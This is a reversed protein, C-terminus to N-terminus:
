GPPKSRVPVSRHRGKRHIGRMLEEILSGPRPRDGSTDSRTPHAIHRLALAADMAARMHVSARAVDAVPCLPQYWRGIVIGDMYLPRSWQWYLAGTRPEALCWITRSIWPEMDVRWSTVSLISPEAEWSSLARCGAQSLLDVLARAFDFRDCPVHVRPSATRLSTMTMGHPRHNARARRSTCRVARPCPAARGQGTPSEPNALSRHQRSVFADSRRSGPLSASASHM